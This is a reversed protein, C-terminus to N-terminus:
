LNNAYCQLSAHMERSAEFACHQMFTDLHRFAPLCVLCWIISRNAEHGSDRVFTFLNWWFQYLHGIARFRIQQALVCCQLMSIAGIRCMIAFRLCTDADMCECMRVGALPRGRSEVLPRGRSQVLDTSQASILTLDSQSMMNSVHSMFFSFLLRVCM